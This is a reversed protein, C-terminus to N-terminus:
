QLKKEKVSDVRYLQYCGTRHKVKSYTVVLVGRLGNFSAAQNGCFVVTQTFLAYTNTPKFVVVTMLRDEGEKDVEGSAMSGMLYQNPNEQSIVVGLSNSALSTPSGYAEKALGFAFLLVFLLALLAILYNRVINNTKM